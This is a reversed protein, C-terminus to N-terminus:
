CKTLSKRMCTHIEAKILSFYVTILRPYMYMYDELNVVAKEVNKTIGVTELQSNKNCQKLANNYKSLYM